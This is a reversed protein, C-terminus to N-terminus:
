PTGYLLTFSAYHDSTYYILGDDSFVIRKAGRSSAGLTDIDCEYYTHGQPLLGERNMFRDGGICKGPAYREVSGSKWGLKRAQSKTIYNPPLKGHQHIYLAVEEKSDISKEQEPETQPPKTETPAPETPKTTPETEPAVTPKPETPKPQTPKPQAPKPAPRTEPQTSETEPQTPQSETEQTPDQAPATTETYSPESQLSQPQTSNTCGALSLLLALALLFSLIKNM